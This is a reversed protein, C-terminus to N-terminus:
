SYLFARHASSSDQSFGVVQGNNNLGFGNVTGLDTFSYLPATVGDVTTLSLVAILCVATLFNKSALKFSLLRAKNSFNENPFELFAHRTKPFSRSLFRMKMNSKTGARYVPPKATPHRM